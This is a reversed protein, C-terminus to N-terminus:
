LQGVVQVDVILDKTVLNAPDVSIVGVRVIYDGTVFGGVGSTPKSATLSGDKAVYLVSGAAHSLGCNIIKGGLVVTAAGGGSINAMLIGVASEANGSTGVNVIAGFGSPNIAVATPYTGTYTGTFDPTYLTTEVAGSAGGVAEAIGHIDITGGPGTYCLRNATTVWLGQLTASNFPVSAEPTFTIAKPDIVGTVELDGQISLLKEGAPGTIVVPIGSAISIINGYGYAQDLTTSGGGGVVGGGVMFMGGNSDIRFRLRDNASISSTGLLTIQTSQTDPAGVETYDYGLELVNGNLYIELEGSAVKYSRASYPVQARSDTPLTVVVPPSISALNIENNGAAGSAKVVLPEDYINGFPTTLPYIQGTSDVQWILDQEAFISVKGAPPTVPATGTAYNQFREFTGVDFAGDTRLMSAQSRYLTVDAGFQIGDDATTAAAPGVVLRATINAQTTEGLSLFGGMYNFAATGMYLNWRVNGMASPASNGYFGFANDASLLSDAYFGYHTTLAAGALLIADNAKFGYLNPLTYGAAIVADTFYLISSAGASVVPAAAYHGAVTLTDTATDWTFNGSFDLTTDSGSPGSNDNASFPVRQSAFNASNATPIVDYGVAPTVTVTQATNKVRFAWSTMGASSGSANTLQFWSPTTFTRLQSTPPSFTKTVTSTANVGAYIRIQTSSIIEFVSTLPSPPPFVPVFAYAFVGSLDGAQIGGASDNSDVFIIDDALLGHGTVYTVTVYNAGSTTAATTALVTNDAVSLGSGGGGDLTNGAGVTINPDASVIVPVIEALYGGDAIIKGKFHLTSAASGLTLTHAGLNALWSQDAPTAVDITDLGFRHNFVGLLSAEQDFFFNANDEAIRKQSDIWLVSKNTKTQLYVDADASIDGQIEVKANFYVGWSNLVSGDFFLLTGATVCRAVMFVDKNNYNRLPTQAASLVQYVNTTADSNVLDESSSVVSGSTLAGGATDSLKVWLTDGLNFTTAVPTALTFNLLADANSGSGPTATENNRKRRRLTLLNGSGTNLKYTGSAFHANFAHEVLIDSSGGSGATEAGLGLVPIEEGPELMGYGRLVLRNGVRRGLWYCDADHFAFEGRAVAAADSDVVIDANSYNSRFYRMQETSPSGVIDRSLRLATVTGDAIRQSDTVATGSDGSVFAEVRYYLSYSESERRVHDGIAIGTFDGAVGSVVRQASGSFATPVTSPAWNVSNESAVPVERQLVLYINGGDVPVPSTFRPNLYSRHASDTYTGGLRWKLGTFNAQWEVPTTGEAVLTMGETWELTGTSSPNISHGQESDLYVTALSLSDVGASVWDAGYWLSSGSIESIRTMVADMWEKMTRIGKDNLVGSGDRSLFPSQATQGVDAGSTVPEQRNESWNFKHSPTPIAGGTGLRFLLPRCDVVATIGAEDTTMKYLPIAGSTFGTTNPPPISLVLINQSNTSAGFENGAVDDSNLALPNWIAQNVPNLTENSFVAEVYYTLNRSLRVSLEETDTLGLYFSGSNDQPNFVLSGAVAVTFDFASKGTIEFGRLIYPLDSGTFATILARFDYATFSEAALLHSLDLRQQAILNNRSLVSM